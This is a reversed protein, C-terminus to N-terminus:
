LGRISLIKELTPYSFTQKEERLKLIIVLLNNLVSCFLEGKLKSLGSISTM